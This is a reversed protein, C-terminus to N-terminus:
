DESSALIFIGGLLCLIAEITIIYTGGIQIQQIWAFIASYPFLIFTEPIGMAFTFGEILWVIGAIMVLAGGLKRGAMGLIAGVLALVALILSIWLSLPYAAYMGDYVGGFIGIGIITDICLLLVLAGAALGLIGGVAKLAGM